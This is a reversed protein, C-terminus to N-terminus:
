NFWKALYGIGFSRRKRRRVCIRFNQMNGDKEEDSPAWEDSDSDLSASFLGFRVEKDDYSVDSPRYNEKSEIYKQLLPLKGDAIESDIILSVRSMEDNSQSSWLLSDLIDAISGEFRRYATLIDRREDESNKYMDAYKDMASEFLDAFWSNMDAELTTLSGHEDYAARKSPDSLIGYVASLAQFKSADGGKDPHFRLAIKRYASKIAEPSAEPSVGICEYLSQKGFCEYILGELHNEGSM